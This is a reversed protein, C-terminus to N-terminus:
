RLVTSKLDGTGRMTSVSDNASGDLHLGKERYRDQIQGRRSTVALRCGAVPQPSLNKKRYRWQSSNRYYWPIAILYWRGTIYKVDIYQVTIPHPSDNSAPQAFRSRAPKGTNNSSTNEWWMLTVTLARELTFTVLDKNLAPPLCM